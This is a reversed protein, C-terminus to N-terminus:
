YKFMCTLRYEKVASTGDGADSIIANPSIYLGKTPNFVLGWITKSEITNYSTNPNYVDYRAFLDINGNFNYNLYLSTATEKSSYEKKNFEFGLRFNSERWGGFVGFVNNNHKDDIANYRSIYILGANFGNDKLLNKEGYMLRVYAAPKDDNTNGSDFDAKYGEGNVAQFSMNFDGFNHSYGIGFDATKTMGYMDLVSKSIFRYGWNKEQVGYSNTGILGMSFKGGSNFKWDAYANKLYVQLKSDTGDAMDVWEQESAICDEENNIYNTSTCGFFQEYSRGVDFRVKFFLNDSIDNTYQFYTRDIDFQQTTGNYDFIAYGGIKGQMFVTSLFLSLALVKKM